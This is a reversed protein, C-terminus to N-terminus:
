AYFHKIQYPQINKVKDNMKTGTCFITLVQFLQFFYQTKVAFNWATKEPFTICHVRCIKHRCEEEQSPSKTICNKQLDM